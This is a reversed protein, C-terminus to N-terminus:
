YQLLDYRHCHKNTDDNNIGVSNWILNDDIAIVSVKITPWLWIIGFGLFIHGSYHTPTTHVLVFFYMIELLRWEGHCELICYSYIINSKQQCLIREDKSKMHMTKVVNSGLFDWRRSNSWLMGFTVSFSKICIVCFLSSNSYSSYSMPHGIRHIGPDLSKRMM